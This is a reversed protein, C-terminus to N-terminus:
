QYKRVALNIVLYWGGKKLELYRKQWYPAFELDWPMNEDQILVALKALIEKAEDETLRRSKGQEAM